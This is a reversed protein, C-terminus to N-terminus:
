DTKEDVKKFLRYSKARLQKFRKQFNKDAEAEDEILVLVDKRLDNLQQREDELM